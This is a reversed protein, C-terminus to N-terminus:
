MLLKGTRHDILEQKREAMAESRHAKEQYASYQNPASSPCCCSYLICCCAALAFAAAMAIAAILLEDMGDYDGYLDSFFDRVNDSNYSNPGSGYNYLQGSKDWQYIPTYYEGEMKQVVSCTAEMDQADEYSLVFTYWYYDYGDDGYNYNQQRDDQGDQDCDRLSIAEGYNGGDFLAQCYDSADGYDENQNENNGNYNQGMQYFAQHSLYEIDGNCSIEHLFPYTILDAAEDMYAKDYNSAVNQFSQKSTYISCEDDLFLAVEVGSGDENCMFGAYLPWYSDLYGGTQQCQGIAYIWYAVSETDIQYGDDDDNADDDNGDDDNGDDDNGDDDNNSNSEFCKFSECIKCSVREYRGQELMRGGGQNQEENAQQYGDNWQEEDAQQYGDNWQEEDAQQYAAEEYDAQQGNNNQGNQVQTQFYENWYSWSNYGSYQDGNDNQLYSVYRRNHTYSLALVALSCLHSILPLSGLVGIKDCFFFVAVVSRM